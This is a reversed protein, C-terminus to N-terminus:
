GGRLLARIGSVNGCSVAWMLPTSGEYGLGNPDVGSELLKRVESGDGRCAHRALEALKADAFVQDVTMDGVRHEVQNASNSILSCGTLALSIFFRTHRGTAMSLM